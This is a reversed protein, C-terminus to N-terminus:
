QAGGSKIQANLHEPLAKARSQDKENEYWTVGDDIIRKRDLRDQELRIRAACKDCKVSGYLHNEPKWARGSIAVILMVLELQYRVHRVHILRHYRGAVDSRFWCFYSGCGDEAVEIGIDDYGSKFFFREDTEIGDRPCDLCDGLWLLWHKSPQREIQSWKFGVSRLWDETILDAGQLALETKMADGSHQERRQAM